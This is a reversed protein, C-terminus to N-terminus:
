RLDTPRIYMRANCDGIPLRYYKWGKSPVIRSSDSLSSDSYVAFRSAVESRSNRFQPRAHGIGSEYYVQVFSDPEIRRVAAPGSQTKDVCYLPQGTENMVAYRLRYYPDCSTIALALFTLLTVVYPSKGQFSVSM